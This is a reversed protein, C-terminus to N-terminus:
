CSEELRKTWYEKHEESKWVFHIEMCYARDTNVSDFFKEMDTLTSNPETINGRLFDVYDDYIIEQIHRYDKLPIIDIM